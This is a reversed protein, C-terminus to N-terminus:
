SIPQVKGIPGTRAAPGRHPRCQGAARDHDICRHRRPSRPLYRQEACHEGHEAGLSEPGPEFAVEGRHVTRAKMGRWPCNSHLQSAKPRKGHHM